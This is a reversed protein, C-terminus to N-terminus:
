WHTVPELVGSMEALPPPSTPLPGGESAASSYSEEEREAANLYCLTSGAAMGTVAVGRPGPIRRGVGGHAMCGPRSREKKVAKGSGTHLPM